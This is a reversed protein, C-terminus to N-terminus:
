KGHLKTSGIHNLPESLSSIAPHELPFSSIKIVFQQFSPINCVQRVIYVFVTKGNIELEKQNTEDMIQFKALVNKKEPFDNEVKNM